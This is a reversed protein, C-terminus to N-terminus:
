GISCRSKKKYLEPNTDLNEDVQINEINWAM